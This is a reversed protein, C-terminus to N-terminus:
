QPGSHPALATALDPYERRVFAWLAASTPPTSHGPLRGLHQVPGPVEGTFTAVRFATRHAAFDALLEGASARLGLPLLYMADLRYRGFTAAIVTNATHSEALAFPVLAETGAATSLYLRALPLETSDQAVATIVLVANAGLDAAEASDKPFAVDYLAIRPIPAYSRYQIAAQSLRDDLAANSIPRNSWGLNRELHTVEQSAALGPLCFMALLLEVAGIHNVVDRRGTPNVAHM